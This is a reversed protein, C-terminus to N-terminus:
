NYKSGLRIFDPNAHIFFLDKEDIPKVFSYEIFNEWGQGIHEWDQGLKNQM